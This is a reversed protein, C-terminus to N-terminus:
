QERCPQQALIASWKLMYRARAALYNSRGPNLQHPLWGLKKMQLYKENAIYFANRPSLGAALLEDRFQMVLKDRHNVRKGTM